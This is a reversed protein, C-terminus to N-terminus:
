ENVDKEIWKGEFAKFDRMLENLEDTRSKQLMGAKKLQNWIREPISSSESKQLLDYFFDPYYLILTSYQEEKSFILLKLGEKRKLIDEFVTIMYEQTEKPIMKRLAAAAVKRDLSLNPDKKLAALTPKIQKNYLNSNQVEIVEKIDLLTMKTKLEVKM